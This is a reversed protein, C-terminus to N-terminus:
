IARTPTADAQRWSCGALGYRKRAAPLRMCASTRRSRRSLSPALGKGMVGVCNVANVLAEAGAELLNGHRLEIM